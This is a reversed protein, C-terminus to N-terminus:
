CADRSQQPRDPDMVEVIPARRSSADLESVLDAGPVLGFTALRNAMAPRPRMNRWSRALNVVGQPGQGTSAM